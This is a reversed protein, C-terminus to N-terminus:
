VNEFAKYSDHIKREIFHTFDEYNGRGVALLFAAKAEEKDSKEFVPPLIGNRLLEGALVLYAFLSQYEEFPVVRIMASYLLVASIIPHMFRWSNEYQMLSTEMQVPVSPNEGERPPYVAFGKRYEYAAEDDIGQMLRVHMERIDKECWREDNRVESFIVSRFNLIVLHLELPVSPVVRGSLIARVDRDDIEAGDAELLTEVSRRIINRFVSSDFLEASVPHREMLQKLAEIDVNGPRIDITRFRRLVRGDRPKPTDSPITWSWGLKIAGDIRGQSCLLRIRRDSIGWKAAAEKIDIYKM